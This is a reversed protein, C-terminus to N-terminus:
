AMYWERVMAIRVTDKLGLLEAEVMTMPERRKCLITLGEMVWPSHDYHRGFHVKVAPQSLRESDQLNNVALDIINDMDWKKAVHLISLWEDTTFAATLLPILPYLLRLINKFAQPDIGELRVPNKDSQGDVSDNSGQPLSFMAAFIPSSEVLMYIPVRFLRDGVSLLPEARTILERFGAGVWVPHDYKRGCEIKVVSSPFEDIRQLNRQAQVVVPDMEYKHALKLISFWEPYRWTSTYTEYETLPYLLALLRVFDVPDVQPLLIPKDDPLGEAVYKDELAPLKLTFMDEFTSSLLTLKYTPVKFLQDNA